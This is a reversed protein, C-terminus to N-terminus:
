TCVMPNSGLVKEPGLAGSHAIVLSGDGRPDVIGYVQIVEEKPGLISKNYLRVNDLPTM